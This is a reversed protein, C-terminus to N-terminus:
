AAIGAFEVSEASCWKEYGRVRYWGESAQVTLSSRIALWGESVGRAFPGYGAPLSSVCLCAFSTRRLAAKDRSACLAFASARLPVEIGKTCGGKAYNRKPPM